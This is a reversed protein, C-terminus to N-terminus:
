TAVEHALSFGSIRSAEALERDWTSVVVDERSSSNLVHVSALHVADYARLRHSAALEGASAILNSNVGIRIYRRSEALFEELAQEYSHAALRPPTEVYRARALGARVEVIGLVSCAVRTGNLEAQVVSHRERERLYLSLIASSDCYVIM